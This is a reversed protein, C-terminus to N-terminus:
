GSCPENSSLIATEASQPLLSDLPRCLDNLCVEYPAAYETLGLRLSAVSLRTSRDIWWGDVLVAGEPPEMGAGSTRMRSEALTLGGDPAPLWREHWESREVSHIWRLEFGDSPLTLAVVAGAAVICLLSM